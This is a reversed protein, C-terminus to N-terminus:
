EERLTWGGDADVELVANFLTMLTALTVDDVAAPDLHYHARAGGTQVQGTMIHLFRYTRRLDTSHILPTLSRVCVVVQNGDGGWLSFLETFSVGIDTLNGAGAVPMVTVPRPRDPSAAGSAATSREREGVAVFGLAAPRDDGTHADWAELWADPSEEFAIVLVDERSPPDITLLDFCTSDAAHGDAPALVLTNPVDALTSALSSSQQTESPEGM